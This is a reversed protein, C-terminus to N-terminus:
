AETGTGVPAEVEGADASKGALKEELSKLSTREEWKQWGRLWTVVVANVGLLSTVYAAAQAPSRAFDLVFPAVGAVLNGVGTLYLAIRNPLM